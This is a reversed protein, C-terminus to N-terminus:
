SALNQGYKSFMFVLQPTAPGLEAVSPTPILRAPLAMRLLKPARPGPGHPPGRFSTTLRFSNHPGSM